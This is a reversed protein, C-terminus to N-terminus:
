RHVGRLPTPVRCLAGAPLSPPRHRPHLIPRAAHSPTPVTYIFAPSRPLSSAPQVALRAEVDMLEERRMTAYRQMAVVCTFKSRLLLCLSQEDLSPLQLRLLLGLATQNRMMGAITRYLTQTRISAWKRLELDGHDLYPLSADLYQESLDVASAEEANALASRCAAALDRAAMRSHFNQLEDNFYTGLFAMPAAYAKEGDEFALKVFSQTRRISNSRLDAFSGRSAQRVRTARGPSLLAFCASAAGMGEVIVSRAFTVPPAEIDM